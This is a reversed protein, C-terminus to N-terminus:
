QELASSIVVFVILASAGFCIGWAWLDSSFPTRYHTTTPMGVEALLKRSYVALLAPCISYSAVTFLGAYNASHLHRYVPFHLIPSMHFSVLKILHTTLVYMVDIDKVFLAGVIQPVSAILRFLTRRKWDEQVQHVDSGYWAGMLIEGLSIAVLPFVTLLDFAPFCVVFNSIFEAWRARGILAGDQEDFTGTGGHYASWNLNSSTEIADGFFDALLISMVSTSVFIWVCAVGFIPAMKKRDDAIESMVPVSFQYATSFIAVQMMIYLNSVDFTPVDSVAETQNAFQSTPSGFAVAVTAVMVLVMLLRGTLFAMQIFLQDVIPICSLTVAISAFILMYIAYDEDENNTIPLNAQMASASVIASSWTIGYLDIATTGAFFYRVKNGLFIRSLESMEFRRHGIVYPHIPDSRQEAISIDDDEEQAEEEEPVMGFDDEDDEDEDYAETPVQHESYDQVVVINRTSALVKHHEAWDALAEARACAELVYTATVFSQLSVVSLGALSLILGAQVFAWPLFLYGFSILNAIVCVVQFPSLGLPQDDHTARANVVSSRWSGSRSADLPNNAASASSSAPSFIAERPVIEVSNELALKALASTRQFKGRISKNTNNTM